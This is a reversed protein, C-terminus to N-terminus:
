IGSFPLRPRSLDGAPDLVPSVGGENAVQLVCLGSQGHAKVASAAFARPSTIHILFCNQESNDGRGACSPSWVVFSQRGAANTLPAIELKPSLHRDWYGNRGQMLKASFDASSPLLEADDDTRPWATTTIHNARPSFSGERRVVQRRRM